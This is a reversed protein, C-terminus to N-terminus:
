LFNYESNTYLSFSTIFMFMIAIHPSAKIFQVEWIGAYQSAEVPQAIFSHTFAHLFKV